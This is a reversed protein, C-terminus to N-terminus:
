PGIPGISATSQAAQTRATSILRYPETSIAPREHRVELLVAVALDDLERPAARGVRQRADAGVGRRLGGDDPEGLRQRELDLSNPMSTLAIAGPASFVRM